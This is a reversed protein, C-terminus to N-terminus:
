KNKYIRLENNEEKYTIYEIVYLIFCYNIHYYKKIILENENSHYWSLAKYLETHTLKTKKTVILDNM